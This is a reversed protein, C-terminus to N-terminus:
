DFDPLIIEDLQPDPQRGTDTPASTVGPALPNSSGGDNNDQPQGSPNRGSDSPKATSGAIGGSGPKITPDPEPTISAYVGEGVNKSQPVPTPEAAPDATAEPEFNFAADWEEEVDASADKEAPGPESATEWVPEPYITLGLIDVAELYLDESDRWNLDALAEMAKEYDGSEYAAKGQEYTDRTIALKRDFADLVDEIDAYTHWAAAYDGASEQQRAGIYAILEECSPFGDESLKSAFSEKLALAELRYVTMELDQEIGEDMLFIEQLSQAYRMYNKAEGTNGAKEFANVAQELQEATMEELAAIGMAYYDERSFVAHAHLSGFCLFFACLLLIYKKIM